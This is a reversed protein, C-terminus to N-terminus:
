LAWKTGNKRTTEDVGAEEDSAKDSTASARDSTTEKEEDESGDQRRSTRQNTQRKEARQFQLRHRVPACRKQTCRRVNNHVPVGVEEMTEQLPEAEEMCPKCTEQTGSM